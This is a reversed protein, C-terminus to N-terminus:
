FLIINWIIVGLKLIEEMIFDIIPGIVKSVTGNFLLVVLILYFYKEYKYFYHHYKYPLFSLLVKSGDLPPLPLFNFVGLMISYWFIAELLPRIFLNKYYVYVLFIGAILGMLLNMCVGAISVLFTSLRRNKTFNSTNIPVPKAWGFRLVVMCILGIPDIHKLPNLSLRGDYKATNDGCWYAVYGHSIEHPIIVIMLALINIIISSFNINSIQFKM